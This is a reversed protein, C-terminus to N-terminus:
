ALIVMACCIVRGQRRQSAEAQVFKDTRADYGIIAPTLTLLVNRDVQGIIGDEDEMLRCDYPTHTAPHYVEYLHGSLPLTSRVQKIGINFAEVLIKFRSKGHKTDEIWDDSSKLPRSDLPNRAIFSSLMLLLRRAHTSAEQELIAVARDNSDQMASRWAFNHVAM